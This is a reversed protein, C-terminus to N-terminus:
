LYLEQTWTIKLILREIFLPNMEHRSEEGSVDTQWFTERTVTHGAFCTKEERAGLEVDTYSRQVLMPGDHRTPRNVM